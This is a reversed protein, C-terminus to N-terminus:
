SKFADGIAATDNHERLYSIKGEDNFKVVWVYPLDFVTGTPIAKGNKEYGVLVVTNGSEIFEFEDFPYEGIVFTEALQGFYRLVEPKGDYVGGFPVNEPLMNIWVIDDALLDLSAEFDTLMTEIYHQLKKAPNM